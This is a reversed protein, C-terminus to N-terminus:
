FVSFYGYLDLKCKLDNSIENINIFTDDPFVFDLLKKVVNHVENSELKQLELGRCFRVENEIM